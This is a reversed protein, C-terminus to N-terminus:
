IEVISAINGNDNGDDTATPTVTPTPTITAAPSPTAQDIGPSFGLLNTSTVAYAGLMALLFVSASLLILMAKNM